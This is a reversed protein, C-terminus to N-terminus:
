RIAPSATIRAILSASTPIPVKATLTHVNTPPNPQKPTAPPVEMMSGDQVWIYHNVEKGDLTEATATLTIQEGPRYSDKDKTITVSKIPVQQVTANTAQTGYTFWDGNGKKIAYGNETLDEPKLNDSIKLTGIIGKTTGSDKITAKANVTLSEINQGNLDLTLAKDITVAGSVPKLLKVTKGEAQALASQIETYYTTEGDGTVSAVRTEGCPCSGNEFNHTHPVIQCEGPYYFASISEATKWCDEKTIDIAKESQDHLWNGEAFIAKVADYDPNGSNKFVLRIGSHLTTNAVELEPHANSSYDVWFTGFFGCDKVTLKGGEMGLALAREGQNTLEVKDLVVTGGYIHLTIGNGDESKSVLKGNQITINASGSVFILEGSACRKLTKNNLDLTFNGESVSLNGYEEVLEVDRQLTLTSGQNEIAAAWAENFSSYFIETGDAKTLMAVSEQAGAETDPQQENEQTGKCVSLEAGEAGCIPCETNVEEATCRTTCSCEKQASDETDPQQENEGGNQSNCIECIYRCPTEETYGCDETHVTHHECLGTDSQGSEMVAYVPTKWLTVTMAVSLILALSRRVKNRMTKRRIM